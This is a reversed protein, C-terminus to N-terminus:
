AALQLSGTLLLPHTEGTASVLLDRSPRLLVPVDCTLELLIPFWPQSPWVPCVMVLNAKERRIKELCKPVLAFPPFAYGVYDFWNLSFANVATAEPQPRWSVFSPVQANWYSSFLDINVPWINSLSNFVLRNLLWDSSDCESRSERDAEINMVGPLNIAEITLNRHECFETLRKAIKTLDSSRTGGGKNIYCVATSNDLYIRVSLGQAEGVFSQLAYLAGTLELHNIHLDAHSTTWPGRTAVGNCVAAWGSLSADSFIEIDPNRPFFDKGNSKELNFVWWELDSRSESSLSCKVNLNGGAKKVETIYFHQMSRYHSQAFPITPIAWTFNGLISAVARLPVTGSALAKKCLLKVDQVKTIPLSFSLKNSDVIMGLYEMINAPNTVSKEWNILFGLFELIDLMSKLDARAGEESENMILFDDLYVVLRIGQKRLFAVVVKLLKTFVRPAPALGFAMCKFQFIRGNWKFRLYKKQSNQIPVTLYADKLDLKVFWDGKRVLFRVTELNEMKLHEYKVFSNLPKLNVIPRFGGMKKPVCYFSCLFGASGDMIEEIAGKKLLSCIEAQCVAQMDGPMSVDRPSSRQFPESIFDIKLGDTVTDLVWPDDTVKSWRYAFLSLRAGIEVVDPTSLICPSSM